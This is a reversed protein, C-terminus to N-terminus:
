EQSWGHPLPRHVSILDSVYQNFSNRAWGLDYRAKEEVTLESANIMVPEGGAGSVGCCAAAVEHGNDTARGAAKVWIYGSIKEGM